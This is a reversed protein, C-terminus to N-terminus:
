TIFDLFHGDQSFSVLFHAYIRYIKYLGLIYIIGVHDRYIGWFLGKAGRIVGDVDYYLVAWTYM